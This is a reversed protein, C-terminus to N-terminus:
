GQGPLIEELLVDDKWVEARICTRHSTLWRRARTVAAAPDACVVLEMAPCEGAANFGLFLYASDSDGM